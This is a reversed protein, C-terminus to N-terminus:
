GSRARLVEGEVEVLLLAPAPLLICFLPLQQRRPPLPECPAVGDGIGAQGVKRRAVEALADRFFLEEVVGVADEVRRAVPLPIGVVQRLFQGADRPYLAIGVEAGEAVRAARQGTSKAGPQPVPVASTRALVQLVGFGVAVGSGRTQEFLVARPM